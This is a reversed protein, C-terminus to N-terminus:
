CFQLLTGRNMASQHLLVATVASMVGLEGKGQVKLVATVTPMVTMEGRGQVLLM